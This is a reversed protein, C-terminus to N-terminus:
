AILSPIKMDIIVMHKGLIRQRNRKAGLLRFPILGDIFLSNCVAISPTPRLLGWFIWFDFKPIVKDLNSDSEFSTMRNIM